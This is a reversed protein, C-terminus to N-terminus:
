QLSELETMAKFLQSKYVPEEVLNTSPINKLTIKEGDLEVEGDFCHQLKISTLKVKVFTGDQYKYYVEDGVKM